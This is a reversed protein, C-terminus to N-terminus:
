KADRSCPQVQSIVSNAGSRAPLATRPSASSVRMRGRAQTMLTRRFRHYGYRGQVITLGLGPVCWCSCANRVIRAQESLQLDHAGCVSPSNVPVPVPVPFGVGCCAGAKSAQLQKKHSRCLTCGAAAAAAALKRQWMGTQNQPKKSHRLASSRCLACGSSRAPCSGSASGPATADAALGTQYM